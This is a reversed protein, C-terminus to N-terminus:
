NKRIEKENLETKLYNILKDLDQDSLGELFNEPPVPPLTLRLLKEIFNLREVPKLTKIDARIKPLNESLIDVIAARILKVEVSAGPPRGNRNIREDNKVFPRPM